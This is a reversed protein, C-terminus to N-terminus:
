APARPLNRATTPGLPQPLDLRTFAPSNGAIRLPASGRDSDHNAISITGAGCGNSSSSAASSPTAM